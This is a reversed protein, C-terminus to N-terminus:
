KSMSIKCKILVLLFVLSAFTFASLVSAADGSGRTTLNYITYHLFIKVLKLPQFKKHIYLHNITSMESKILTKMKYEIISIALTSM